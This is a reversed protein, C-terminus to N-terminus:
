RAAHVQAHRELNVGEARAFARARPHSRPHAVLRQTVFHGHVFAQLAQRANGFQVAMTVDIQGQWSARRMCEHDQLQESDIETVNAVSSWVAAKGDRLGGAIPQLHERGDFLHVRAPHKVTVDLWGVKGKRARGLRSHLTCLHDQKVKANGLHVKIRFSPAVVFHAILSGETARPPVRGNM